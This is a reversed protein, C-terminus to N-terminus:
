TAAFPTSEAGSSVLFGSISWTGSAVDEVEFNSGILGGTTSGNMTIVDSDAATIVTVGGTDSAVLVGGQIIDTGNAAVIADSTVTVGCVFRYKNGSGTAAPLNCTGGGVPFVMTKGAHDRATLSITGSVAIIGRYQQVSNVELASPISAKAQDFSLLVNGNEDRIVKGVVEDDANTLTATATGSTDVSVILRVNEDAESSYYSEAVTANPTSYTSLTQWAGSGKSGVEKQFLITMNYTGSISIAVREGKRPVSLSVSDGVGTFTAM